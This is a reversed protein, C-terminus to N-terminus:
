PEDAFAEDILRGLTDWNTAAAAAAADGDGAELAVILQEHLQVSEIAPGSGFQLAELRRIKPTLRDLAAVLTRNGAVQLPVAHVADDAALAAAVDGAEVARAFDANAARMQRVDAEAFTDAATRAALEHLARLVVFAEHCDRRTVQTVRTFANPKSEVLGEDSLRALAERVPTRSLGVAAALEGDRIIQGPRLEGRVIADRLRHHAEDRLLRREVRGLSTSEISM